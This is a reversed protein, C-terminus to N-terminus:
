ADNFGRTLHAWPGRSANERPAFVAGAPREAAAAEDRAM